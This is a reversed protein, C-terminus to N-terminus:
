PKRVPQASATGLKAPVSVDRTQPAPLTPQKKAGRGKGAMRLGRPDRAETLDVSPFLERAMTSRTPNKLDTDSSPGTYGNQAYGNNAPMKSGVIDQAM